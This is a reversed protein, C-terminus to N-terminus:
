HTNASIRILLQKPQMDLFPPSHDSAAVERDAPTVSAEPIFRFRASWSDHSCLVTEQDLSGTAQMQFSTLCAQYLASDDRYPPRLV